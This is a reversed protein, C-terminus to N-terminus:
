PNTEVNLNIGVRLAKLGNVGQLSELELEELDDLLLGESQLNEIYPIYEKATQADFYVLAIKGPQTLRETTGKLNVKDIRKKIVEYRINYSGEVDFRREDERFSIDISGPNIFILQTTRLALSLKPLLLENSRAIEAMSSLQWKRIKELYETKFIKKPEISQGMYIDYEVGDTRFKEFYTPFDQQIVEKHNEFYRNINSNITQMDNEFDRRHLHGEGTDEKSLALYTEISRLTESDSITNKVDKLFKHVDNDLFLQFRLEEGAYENQNVKTKIKESKRLFAETQKHEINQKVLNLTKLLAESQFMFDLHQANNRQVTSNRIDIAGYLPYVNKFAVTEAKKVKTAKLGEDMYHLAAEKFKWAVAEQLFTYKDRIIAEIEQNFEIIDHELSQGIVPMATHLKGMVLEEIANEEKAYTILLGVLEKKCLIPMVALSNYKSQLVKLDFDNEGCAIELSPKFIMCPNTFYDKCFNIYINNETDGNFTHQFLQSNKLSDPNLVIEDNVKLYPVLDFHLNANGTLNKLTKVVEENYAQNSFSARDIILSKMHEISQVDTINEFKMVSFGEFKFNSLPLIKLITSVDFDKQWSERLALFDFNPLEDKPSVKVFSNDVILKFYQQLESNKNQVVFVVDQPPYKPFNYLKELILSYIQSIDKKASPEYETITEYSSCQNGAEHLLNYFSDTGFFFSPKFPSSFAMNVESEDTIPPVLFTYIEKFVDEYEPTKELSLNQQLEKNEELKTLLSEFYSNNINGSNEIKKKIFAILPQISIHAELDNLGFEPEKPINYVQSKM